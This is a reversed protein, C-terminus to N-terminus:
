RSEAPRARLRREVEARLEPHRALVPRVYAAFVRPHVDALVVARDVFDDAAPDARVEVSFGEPDVGVPDFLPGRRERLRFELLPFDDHNLPVGALPSRAFADRTLVIADVHRAPSVGLGTARAFAAAVPSPIPAASLTLPRDSCSAVYYAGRASSLACHRFRSALSALLTRAGEPSTDHPSFWTAYVGGEGLAARALDLFEVTYVKGAAYFKPTSVTNVVLDYRGPRGALFRRGDQHHLTVRPDRVVDLNLHALAAALAFTARNVDVVDTEAFLGAVAGASIGSGLGLVLARERRPAFLAPALGATMEAANPRGGRQVWIETMGNYHIRWEGPGKELTADDSGSKYVTVSAAPSQAFATYVVGEPITAGLLALAAAGGALAFDRPGRDPAAMAVFALGGVVAAAVAFFPLAEHLLFVYLVLGAANGAGSVLLLRGSRRAVGADAHLLAPLTGALFAYPVGGLLLAFALRVAVLGAPSRLADGLPGYSEAVQPVARYLAALFPVAAFAVATGLAGLSVTRAFALRRAEVLRTGAAVALLLAATSLAFHERRPEFLAYATKLFLASFVGTFASALFVLPLARRVDDGSPADEPPPRLLTGKRAFLVAAVALNLAGLALLSGRYGLRRVVVFDVALLSAAAGVNSWAYARAFAGAAGAGRLCAAFAPVSVGVAAAPLALLVVALLIGNRVPDAVLDGAARPVVRALLPFAVAYAGLLAEVVWLRPVLRHALVSGLGMGLLFTGLLTAHVHFLDGLSATLLRLYLVEHALGGMGSLLALALLLRRDSM